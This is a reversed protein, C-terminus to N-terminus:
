KGPVPQPPGAPPAPRTPKSMTPNANPPSSKPSTEKPPAPIEEAGPPVNPKGNNNGDGNGNVPPEAFPAIPSKREVEITALASLSNEYMAFELDLGRFWNMPPPLYGAPLNFELKKGKAAVSTSSWARLGNDLDKLKYSGGLPCILKADLLNQAVALCDERPLQFQMSLNHLFTTNSASTKRARLYAQANVYESLKAKTLDGVHLRVQAPRAAEVIRIQPTVEELLERQFSLISFDERRRFWLNLFPIQEYGDADLNLARNGLIFSLLGPKPWAGLYGHIMSGNLLSGTMVVQGDRVEFPPNFDRLGAFLHHVSGGVGFFQATGAVVQLSILDGPIPALSTKTAPGLYNTFKAYHQKAFPVVHIDATIREQTPTNGPERRIEAIVPDMRQWQSRYFNAFEQYAAVESRTVKEIEVDAAPVFTGRGGRLSDSYHDGDSVIHSGDARKSFGPPLLDGQVLQDITEGPKKEARAALKALQILEIDTLAQLRRTMEVRYKPGVLNRFFEDSMFVFATASREIPAIQRAYHFEKSDGLSDNGQGADYFREVLKRSTTVLHFDGDVAYFSRVSNDASSLFAVPHGAIQVAEEKVGPSKAAETRQQKLSTSLLFNNKAQFIFGISAGERLFTDHGVLAVDAIVQPGFIKSLATEKLALQRELKASNGYDVGRVAILNRLDGGWEDLTARFWQFNEFSGFRVYLSEHPVHKALPEIVIGEALDPLEMAPPVVPTPLPQDAIENGASTRLMTNKQMAAHVSETGLLMGLTQDVEKEGFIRGYDSELPLNLRRSLMSTLYNEVAPPLDEEHNRRLIRQQAFERWWLSLLRSHAGVNNMPQITITQPKPLSVTVNLPENGRFLFYLNITPPRDLLNRLLGKLPAADFAPYLVRGDKETIQFEGDGPAFDKQEATLHLTIKGVGFPTGSFAEVEAVARKLIQANASSATFTFVIALALLGPIFTSIPRSLLGYTNM